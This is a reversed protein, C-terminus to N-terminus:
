WGHHGTGDRRGCGGTHAMGCHTMCCHRWCVRVYTPLRPRPYAGSSRRVPEGERESGVEFGGTRGSSGVRRSSAGGGMRGGRWM